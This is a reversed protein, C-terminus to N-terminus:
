EQLFAELILSTYFYYNEFNSIASTLMMWGQELPPDDTIEWTNGRYKFSIVLKNRFLDPNTIFAVINERTIFTHTQLIFSNTKLVVPYM